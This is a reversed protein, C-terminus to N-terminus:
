KSRKPRFDKLKVLKMGLELKNWPKKYINKIENTLLENMTDKTEYLGNLNGSSGRSEIKDYNFQSRLKPKKEKRKAQKKLNVKTNLKLVSKLDM